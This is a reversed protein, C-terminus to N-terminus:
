SHRPSRPATAAGARASCRPSRAGSVPNGGPVAERAITRSGRHRSSQRSAEPHPPSSLENGLAAPSRNQSSSRNVRELDPPDSRRRSLRLNTESSTGFFRSVAPMIGTAAVNRGMTRGRVSRQCRSKTKRHAHRRQHAEHRRVWRVPPQHRATELAPPSGHAGSKAAAPSPSLRELWLRTGARTGAAPASARRSAAESKSV